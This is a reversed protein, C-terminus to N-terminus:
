YIVGIRTMEMLDNSPELVTSRLQLSVHLLQLLVHFSHFRERLLAKELADVVQADQLLFGRM